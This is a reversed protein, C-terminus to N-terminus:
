HLAQLATAIPQANFAISGGVLAAIVKTKGHNPDILAWTVGGLLLALGILPLGLPLAGTFASNALSQLATM